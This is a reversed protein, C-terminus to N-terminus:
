LRTMMVGAVIVMAAIVKGKDSKEKLFLVGILVAFLVSTERLSAVLAIPAVTMAWVAIWYAAVSAGGAILGLIWLRPEKPLVRTGKFVLAWATFLSADLVFVWGIFASPQLSVRAGIGDALTYGATGMAAMLALPLLKREEGHTFVGRAMLLIGCGVLVIGSVQWITLYDNLFLLSFVLVIVPATGRSIPYVRSLDGKQYAMTLFTKYILHLVVSIALWVYAAPDPAPFALVMALGIVAHAISLLVMGQLKNDGFKVIANWAAHLLAAFLVVLFIGFSM